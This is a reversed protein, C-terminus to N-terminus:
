EVCFQLGAQKLYRGTEPKRWFIFPLYHDPGLATHVIGVTAATGALLIIDQPFLM